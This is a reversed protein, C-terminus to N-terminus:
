ENKTNTVNQFFYNLIDIYDEGEKALQNAGFQSM